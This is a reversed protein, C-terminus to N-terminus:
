VLMNGIAVDKMSQWRDKDSLIIVSNSVRACNFCLPVINKTTPWFVTKKSVTVISPKELGWTGFNQSLTLIDIDRGVLEDVLIWDISGEEDGVMVHFGAPINIFDKGLRFTYFDGEIKKWVMRFNMFYDSKDISFEYIKKQKTEPSDWPYRGEESMYYM